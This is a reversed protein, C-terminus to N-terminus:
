GCCGPAQGAAAAVGARSVAVDGSGGGCCGGAPEVGTGAVATGAVPTEEVGLATAPAGVHASDGLTWAALEQRSPYRGSSALRGDVVVAPLADDGREALLTRVLDSGAFAQPEQALNRRAVVAGHEALWGLDAAFAALAPDVSPGCVGTSCCMPPDFVEVTAM